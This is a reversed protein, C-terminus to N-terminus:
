CASHPPRPELGHRCRRSRPVPGAVAALCRVARDGALGAPHVARHAQRRSQQHRCSRCGSSPRSCASTPTSIAATCSLRSASPGNALWLHGHFMARTQLDYFNSKYHPRLPNIPDGSSVVSDLHLARRHPRRRRPPLPSDGDAPPWSQRRSPGRHGVRHRGVWTADATREGSDGSLRSGVRTGRRYGGGNRALTDLLPMIRVIAVGPNPPM